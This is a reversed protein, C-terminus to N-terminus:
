NPLIGRVSLGYNKKTLVGYRLGLNEKKVM